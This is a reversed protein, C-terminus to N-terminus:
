VINRQKELRAEISLSPEGAKQKLADQVVFPFEFNFREQRIMM